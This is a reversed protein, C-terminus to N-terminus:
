YIIVLFNDFFVEDIIILSVKRAFNVFFCVLVTFLNPKKTGVCFHMFHSLHQVLACIVEKKLSNRRISETEPAFCGPNM